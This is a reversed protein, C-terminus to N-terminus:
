RSSNGHQCDRELAFISKNSQCELTELFPLFLECSVDLVLANELKWIFWCKQTRNFRHKISIQAIKRLQCDIQRQSERAPALTHLPLNGRGGRGGIRALLVVKNSKQRRVAVCHPSRKEKRKEHNSHYRKTMKFVLIM